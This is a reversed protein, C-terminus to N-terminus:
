LLNIIADTILSFVIELEPRYIDTEQQINIDANKSALLFSRYGTDSFDKAMINELYYQNLQKLKLIFNPHKEELSILFGARTILQWYDLSTHSFYGTKLGISNLVDMASNLEPLEDQLHELLWIHDQGTIEKYFNNASIEALRVGSLNYPAAIILFDKSVRSSEKIFKNRDEKKIHELVDCSVVVDFSSDAFPMLLASGEIYNDLKATNPLMDLITLDIDIFQDIITGAGGVDLVKLKKIGTHAQYAKLISAQILYRSIFTSDLGYYPAFDVKEEALLGSPSLTFM